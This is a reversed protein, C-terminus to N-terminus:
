EKRLAEMPSLQSAKRAPYSGFVIGVLASFGFGILISQWSVSFYVNYGYRSAAFTAGFSILSGLIIGALGGLFTIFIAEFLFQKLLDSNHAGVAKRLGIEFTRETVAVYMVNMIGVGGVLLSISTLALLLLDIYFFVNSLINTIEEISNVAFDDNDPNTIHHRKRLSDTIELVTLDVQSKDKMKFVAMQIHDIGLIKKQLTELPLYITNDFNFFSTVGRKKLVGIVKYTQGKIKINQGVPDSVGFFSDRVDSGIVAVQALSKEDGESFMTGSEFQVQKDADTVGSTVGMMLIQKNKENYSTVQQSIVGAYWAGINPLKSVAQADELKLTTIQMGGIQGSANQTSTKSVNPIKIEMQVIDTGFADVQGLVYNRLAAGLSLVIIVSAVGIMIGLLSLATRGRSNRLSKLALRISIIFEHM